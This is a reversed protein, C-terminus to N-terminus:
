DNEEKDKGIFKNYFNHCYDQYDTYGLLISNDWFHQVVEIFADAYKYKVRLHVVTYRDSPDDRALAEYFKYPINNADLRDLISSEKTDIIMIEKSFLDKWKPASLTYLNDLKENSM